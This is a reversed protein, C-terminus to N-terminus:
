GAALTVAEVSTECTRAAVFENHLAADLRKSLTPTQPWQHDHVFLATM